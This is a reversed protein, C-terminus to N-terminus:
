YLILFPKINQQHSLAPLLALGCFSVIHCVCPWGDRISKEGCWICMDYYHSLFFFLPPLFYITHTTHFLPVSNVISVWPHAWDIERPFHVQIVIKSSSREHWQLTTTPLLSSLKWILDIEIGRERREWVAFFNYTWPFSLLHSLKQVCALCAIWFNLLRSFSIVYKWAWATCTKHIELYFVSFIKVILDISYTLCLNKPPFWWQCRWSSVGAVALRRKAYVYKM